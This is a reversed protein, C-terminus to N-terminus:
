GAKRVRFVVLSGFVEPEFDQFGAQATLNQLEELSFSRIGHFSLAHRRFARFRFLGEQGAIITNAALPAGPRLTRGIEGLGLGPDALLHLAAGCVAADFFNDPFPLAEVLARAFHLGRRGERRALAVGKFLMGWSMDVGFIERDSAALRRGLTGPGCAVDLLRGSVEAVLAGISRLMDAYSVRWGAYIRLVLPYLPKLDYITALWDFWRVRRLVVHRSRRLNDLIFDPIGERVPFALACTPCRLHSGEGALPGQCRPCVYDTKNM